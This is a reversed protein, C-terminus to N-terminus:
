IYHKRVDVNLSSRPAKSLTWSVFFLNASSLITLKMSEAKDRDRDLHQVNTYRCRSIPRPSYSKYSYVSKETPEGNLVRVRGCM